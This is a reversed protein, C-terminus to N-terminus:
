STKTLVNPLTKFNYPMKSIMFYVDHYIQLFTQKLALNIKEENDDELVEMLTHFTAITKRQDAYLSEDVAKFYYGWVLLEDLQQFINKLSHTPMSQKVFEMLLQILMPSISNKSITLAQNIDKILCKRREYSLLTCTEVGLIILQLAELCYQIRQQIIPDNFDIQIMNESPDGSRVITGKKNISQTIGLSNLLAISRSATEKMVGYEKMIEPISPIYKQQSFEGKIIRRLLKMALRAYLESREKIHFWQMHEKNAPYIPEVYQELTQMYTFVTNRSRAYTDSIMEYLEDFQKNLIYHYLKTLWEKVSTASQDFPNCLGPYPLFPVQLFNEADLELDIMLSNHLSRILTKTVLNTTQILSPHDMSEDITDIAKSITMLEEKGCHKAAEKYLLPLLLGLGHYGDIIAERREILVSMYEEISATYIVIAPQGLATHIYGEEHLMKMVKRVTTIGVNYQQCLVKQSPLTRQQLFAGSRIQSVLAQYLYHYLTQEQYM